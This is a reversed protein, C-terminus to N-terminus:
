PQRGRSEGAGRCFEAIGYPYSAFGKRRTGRAGSQARHSRLDPDARSRRQDGAEAPARSPSVSEVEDPDSFDKAATEHPSLAFGNTDLSLEDVGERGDRIAVTQEVNEPGASFEPRRITPM